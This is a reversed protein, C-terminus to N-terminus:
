AMRNFARVFQGVEGGSLSLTRASMDGATIREAVTTLRRLTYAARETQFVMMAVIVVAVALTIPLVLARVAALTTLHDPNPFRVRLLGVTRGEFRIPQWFSAVEQGLASDFLANVLPLDDVGTTAPAPLLDDDRNTTVANHSDALLLGSASFITLRADLVAARAQLLAVLASRDPTRTTAGWIALLEPDDALRATTARWQGFTQTTVWRDLQYTLYVSLGIMLSFIILAYTFATRWRIRPPALM